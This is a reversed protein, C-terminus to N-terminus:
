VFPVDSQPTCDVHVVYLMSFRCTGHVVHQASNYQAGLVVGM